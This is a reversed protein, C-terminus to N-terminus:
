LIFISQKCIGCPLVHQTCLDGCNGAYRADGLKIRGYIVAPVPTAFLVGMALLSDYDKLYKIYDMSNVMDTHANVFPFMRTLYIGLQHVDTITFAMWTVPVFLLLYVHGIM